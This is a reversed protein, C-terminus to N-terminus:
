GALEKAKVGKTKYLRVSPRVEVLGGAAGPVPGKVLMLNRDKDIRVVDISRVTVREAGLHGAMRKGKKLKGSHGRNTAHGGISGPSRHKREVGHTAQQGKFGHRKMTGAFGKGKSTGIVDVYATKEFAEVTIEQGPAFESSDEVRFERHHRRPASGAKADHGIMPITSNRPKIDGYGIQVAEYGDTDKTRLQTVVCPGIELVTVPVSRGEDDFIRTMGKKIGLLSAM